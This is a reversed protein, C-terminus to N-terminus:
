RPRGIARERDSRDPADIWRAFKSTPSRYIGRLKTKKRRATRRTAKAPVGLARLHRAFEKRWERLMPKRINLHYGWGETMAKLVMHVHPHPEDTHLALAYRHRDGFEQQALNRVAALLRDPPTGRPMSFLVKHVLKPAKGRRPVLYPQRWYIDDMDLDWDDILARAARRGVVATSFSDMELARNKCNQLDEFHTQIAELTNSGRSIVKIVVEPVRDGRRVGYMRQKPRTDLLM